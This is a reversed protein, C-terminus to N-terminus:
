VVVSPAPGRPWSRRARRPTDAVGDRRGGSRQVRISGVGLPQLLGKDALVLGHGRRMSAVRRRPPEGRRLRLRPSAQPPDGRRFRWENRALRFCVSGDAREIVWRYRVESKEERLTYAARGVVETDTM